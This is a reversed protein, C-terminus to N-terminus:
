SRKEMCGGIFAAKGFGSQSVLEPGRQYRGAFEYEYDGSVVLRLGSNAPPVVRKILTLMLSGHSQGMLNLSIPAFYADFDGAGPGADIHQHYPLNTVRIWKGGGLVSVTATVQKKSHPSNGDKGWYNADLNCVLDLDRANAGMTLIALGFMLTVTSKKM